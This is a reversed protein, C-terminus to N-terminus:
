GGFLSCLFDFFAFRIEVGQGSEIKRSQEQTFCSKINMPLYPSDSPQSSVAPLCLPPFMVCWWNKGQGEGLVIRLSEYEGAPVNIGDYNRTNFYTKEVSAKVTQNFGLSAVYQESKEVIEGLSSKAAAIASPLDNCDSFIESFESMLYDRLSYKLLQDEESDSNALIHLRFVSQPIAECEKSFATFSSVLISTAAGILMALTLIKEKKLLKNM